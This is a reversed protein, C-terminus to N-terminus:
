FLDLNMDFANNEGDVHVCPISKFIIVKLVIDWSEMSSVYTNVIIQMSQIQVLLKIYVHFCCKWFNWELSLKKFTGNDTIMKIPYKHVSAMDMSFLQTKLQFCICKSTAKVMWAWLAGQATFVHLKEKCLLSDFTSTLLIFSIIM